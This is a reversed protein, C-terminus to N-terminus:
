VLIFLPIDVNCCLAGVREDPLLVILSPISFILSANFVIFELKDATGSDSTISPIVCIEFPNVGIIAPIFLTAVVSLEALIASNCAKISWFVIQIELKFFAFVEKSDWIALKGASWAWARCTWTSVLM